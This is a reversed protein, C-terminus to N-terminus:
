HMLLDRTQGHAARRGGHGNLTQAREKKRAASKSEKHLKCTIERANSTINELGQRRRESGIAGEATFHTLPVDRRTDKSERDTFDPNYLLCRQRCWRCPENGRHKRKPELKQLQLGKPVSEQLHHSVLAWSGEEVQPCGAKGADGSFLSVKQQTRVPDTSFLLGSVVNPNTDPSDM